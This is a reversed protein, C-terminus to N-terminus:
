PHLQEKDLRERDEEAMKEIQARKLGTFPEAQLASALCGKSEYRDILENGLKYMRGNRESCGDLATRLKAAGAELRQKEAAAALRTDALQKETAALKTALGDREGRTTALQEKVSVLDRTLRAVRGTAVEEKKRSDELKTELDKVKGEADAVQQALRSKEQEALRLKQQWVRSQDKGQKESAWAGGALGLALSVVLAAARSSARM